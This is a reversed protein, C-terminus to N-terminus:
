RNVTKIQLVNLQGSSSTSLRPIEGGTNGTGTWTIKWVITQTSTIPHGYGPGTVRSYQFGCAGDSPASDGDPEAWPRGPGTCSQSPSGDGPNFSLSVPTATVTATMGAASATATLPKWTAADTWYYTWLGVYTFPYGNYGRAESPSRHGSPRPFAIEKYAQEALSAATVIAPCGDASFQLNLDNIQQSTLEAVNGVELGGLADAKITNCYEGQM